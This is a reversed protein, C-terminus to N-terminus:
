IRNRKREADSIERALNRFMHFSIGALAGLAATMFGILLFRHHTQARGLFSTAPIETFQRAAADTKLPDLTKRTVPAVPEVKKAANALVPAEPLAPAKKEWTMPAYHLADPFEGAHASTGLGFLATANAFVLAAAILLVARRNHSTRESRIRRSATFM